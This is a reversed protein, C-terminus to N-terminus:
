AAKAGERREGFSGPPSKKQSKLHATAMCWKWKRERIMSSRLLTYIYVVVRGYAAKIM